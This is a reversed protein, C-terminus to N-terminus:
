IAIQMIDYCVISGLLTLYILDPMWGRHRGFYAPIIVSLPAALLPFGTASRALGTSLLSFVLIWLFYVFSKYARTRMTESRRWFTVAALVAAACCVGWFTLLVPDPREAFIPRGTSFMGSLHEGLEGFVHGLSYGMGWYVYSCVAFPLLYGVWAVIWERASKKFLVLAVPLLLLYVVAPSWVLLAIGAALSADFLPGLLVARRFSAITLDFSRIMLGAAALVPLATAPDFSGGFAMAPYLILPLYTREPLVMNRSLIRTLLLSNWLALMLSVIGATRPWVSAAESLWEGLPMDGTEAMGPLSTGMRGWVLSLLASASLLTWSLNRHTLDLRM